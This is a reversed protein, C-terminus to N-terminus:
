TEEHGRDPWDSVEEQHGRAASRFVEQPVDHIGQGLLHVSREQLVQLLYLDPEVIVNEIEVYRM